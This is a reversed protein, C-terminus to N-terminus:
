GRRRGTARALWRLLYSLVLFAVAVAAVTGWWHPSAPDLFPYMPTGFTRADWAYLFLYPVLVATWTLPVWWALRRHSRGVLLWDVLMAAPLAAHATRGATDPYTRGLLTAFVIGTFVTMSTALGRFWSRRGEFRHPGSRVLLPRVVAGANVLLVAITSEITFYRLQDLVVATSRRSLMLWTAWGAALALLLRWVWAVGTRWDDPSTARADSSTM